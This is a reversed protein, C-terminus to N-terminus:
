VLDTGLEPESPLWLFMQRIVPSAFTCDPASTSRKVATADSQRCLLLFFKAPSLNREAFAAAVTIATLLLCQRPSSLRLRVLRCRRGNIRSSVLPDWGAEWLTRASDVASDIPSSLVAGWISPAPPLAPEQGILRGRLAPWIINARRPCWDGAIVVCPILFRPGLDSTKRAILQFLFIFM